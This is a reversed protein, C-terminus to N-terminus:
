GGTLTGTNALQHFFQLTSLTVAASVDTQLGYGSTAAPSVMAAFIQIVYRSNALFNFVFGPINVPTVNAGTSVDAALAVKAIYPDPGPPGQIGPQGQIGPDGRPGPDGPPGQIGPAGNQGAPGTDGTDGKIGPPGQPGVEGQPGTEGQPGQSGGGAPVAWTEDARLFKDTEGTGSRVALTGLGLTERMEEPTEDDILTRGQISLGKIPKPPAM